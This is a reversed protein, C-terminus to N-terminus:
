CDDRHERTPHDLDIVVSSWFFLSSDRAKSVPKALTEICEVMRIPIREADREGPAPHHNEERQAQCSCAQEQNGIDSLFRKRLRVRPVELDVEPHRNPRRKRDGILRHQGRLPNRTFMRVNFGNKCCGPAAERRTTTGLTECAMDAAHRQPKPIIALFGRHIDALFQGALHILRNRTRTDIHRRVVKDRVDDGTAVLVDFEINIARVKLRQTDHCLIDKLFDALNWTKLARIDTDLIRGRLQLNM